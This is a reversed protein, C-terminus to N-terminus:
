VPVNACEFVLRGEQEFSSERMPSVHEWLRMSSVRVSCRFVIPVRACTLTRAYLTACSRLRTSPMSVVHCMPSTRDEVCEWSVIPRTLRLLPFHDFLDISVQLVSAGQPRLVSVFPFVVDVGVPEPHGSVVSTVRFGVPFVSHPYFRGLKSLLVRTADVKLRALRPLALRRVSRDLACLACVTAIEEMLVRHFGSSTFAVRRRVASVRATAVSCLHEALTDWVDDVICPACGAERATEM